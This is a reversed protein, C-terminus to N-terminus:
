ISKRAEDLFYKSLLESGCQALVSVKRLQEVTEAAFPKDSRIYAEMRSRKDEALRSLAYHLSEYWKAIHDVTQEPLTVLNPELQRDEFSSSFAQIEPLMEIFLHRDQLGEVAKLLSCALIKADSTDIKMFCYFVDFLHIIIM